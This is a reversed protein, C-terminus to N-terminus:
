IKSKVESIEDFLGRKYDSQKLNNLKKEQMDLQLIFEDLIAKEKKMYFLALENIGLSADVRGKKYSKSYEEQKTFTFKTLDNHCHTSIEELIDITKKM